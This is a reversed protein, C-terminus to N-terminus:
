RVQMNTVTHIKRVITKALSPCLILKGEVSQWKGESCQSMLQNKACTMEEEMSVPCDTLNPNPSETLVTALVSAAMEELAVEKATKM